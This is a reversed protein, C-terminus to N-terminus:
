AQERSDAPLSSLIWEAADRIAGDGGKSPLIVKVARRVEPAADAPCFSLGALNLAPLDGTDDGIYAAEDAGLGYKECLQRLVAGKDSVGQWVEDIHLEETRRRVIESERATIVATLIGAKRLLAIGQGDKVQFAKALEGGCGIYLKGDTMTGDVDMAFLKIRM